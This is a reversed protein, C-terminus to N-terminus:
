PNADKDIIDFGHKIGSLIFERDVDDQLEEEWATLCLGNPPNALKKLQACAVASHLLHCGPHSCQHVFRCAEKYHCGNWSNFLKCIVKGDLTLPSGASQPKSPCHTVGRQPLGNPHPIRPQLYVSHLHPVDTGRRFDHACQLKRYERDYLLVSVLNYRQVLQCIKTTYSLYDLMGEGTLRSERPAQVFHCSKCHDVPVPLCNGTQTEQSWGKFSGPAFYFSLCHDPVSVILDWM